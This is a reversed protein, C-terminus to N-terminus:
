GLRRIQRSAGGWGLILGLAAFGMLILLARNWDVPWQNFLILDRLPDIAYINPFLWSFFPVQDENSRVLALGGSTFFVTIATLMVAIGGAFYQAQLGFALTIPVWFLVALLALLWVAWLFEGPWIGLWLYLIGLLATGTLLSMVLALLTKPLLVWGLSRPALGFEMILGAVQEKYTLMFVNMMGGIMFGLLIVGVAIM